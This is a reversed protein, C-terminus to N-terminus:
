IRNECGEIEVMLNAVQTNSELKPYKEHIVNLLMNTSKNIEKNAKFKEQPTKAQSYQSRAKAIDGFVKQEVRAFGCHALIPERWGISDRNTDGCNFAVAFSGM